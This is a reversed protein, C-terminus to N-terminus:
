KFLKKILVSFFGVVFSLLSLFLLMVFLIKLLSIKYYMFFVFMIISTLLFIISLFLFFKLPNYIITAEIVYQLTRLSDRVIKVHSDGGKRKQYDIPHYIISYNSSLYALTSTTTFSFFNSLDSFLPMITARSFIRLGSNIDDVKCGSSWQVITKLILRLFFKIINKNLNNGNRKAVVMDVGESLNNKKSNNFIEIIEILSEPSYTGDVDTIVVTDNKASIIGAKLASGYGKNVLFSIVKIKNNHDKIVKIYSESKDTSGDNVLIIEYDNFKNEELKKILLNVYNYEKLTKEENYVPIVISFM